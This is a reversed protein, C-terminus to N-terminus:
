ITRHRPAYCVVWCLLHLLPMKTLSPRTPIHTSQDCQLRFRFRPPQPPPPAGHTPQRPVQRAQVIRIGTLKCPNPPYGNICIASNSLRYKKEPTVNETPKM